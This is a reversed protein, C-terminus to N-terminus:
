ENPQQTEHDIFENLRELLRELVGQMERSDADTEPPRQNDQLEAQVLERALLARFHAQALIVPPLDPNLRFLPGSALLEDPSHAFPLYPNDVAALITQTLRFEDAAVLAFLPPEFPSKPLLEYSWVWETGQAADERLSDLFSEDLKHERVLAGVVTFATRTFPRRPRARARKLHQLLVM